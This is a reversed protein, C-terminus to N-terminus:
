PVSEKLIRKCVEDLGYRIIEVTTKLQGFFDTGLDIMSFRYWYTTSDNLQYATCQAERARQIFLDEPQGSAEAIILVDAKNDPLYDILIRSIRLETTM